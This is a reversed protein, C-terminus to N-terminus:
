VLVMDEPRIAHSRMQPQPDNQTKIPSRFSKDFDAKAKILVQKLEERNPCDRSLCRAVSSGKKTRMVIAPPYAAIVAQVIATAVSSFSLVVLILM